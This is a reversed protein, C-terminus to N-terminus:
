YLSEQPPTKSPVIYETSEAGIPHSPIDSNVMSDARIGGMKLAKKSKVDSNKRKLISNTRKM